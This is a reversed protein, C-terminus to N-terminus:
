TWPHSISPWRIIYFSIWKIVWDDDDGICLHPVLGGEGNWVSVKPQRKPTNEGKTDARSTQTLPIEDTYFHLLSALPIQGVLVSGYIVRSGVQILRSTSGYHFVM